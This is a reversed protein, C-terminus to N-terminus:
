GGYEGGVGIGQVVRMLVLLIPAWAGIADYTPLLGIVTTGLGMILLTAILMKKRGIRDGFHGFVLSGLPRALFGVAFTAFAVVTGTASDLNSFFLQNFVLGAATGYIFFDYWEIAAGISSALAVKRVSVEEPRTPASEAM